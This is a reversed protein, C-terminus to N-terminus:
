IFLFHWRYSSIFGRLMLVLQNENIHFSGDFKVFSVKFTGFNELSTSLVDDSNKDYNTACKFCNVIM